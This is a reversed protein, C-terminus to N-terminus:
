AGCLGGRPSGPFSSGIKLSKSIGSARRDLIGSNAFHCMDKFGEDNEIGFARKSSYKM